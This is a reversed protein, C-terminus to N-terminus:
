VRVDGRKHEMFAVIRGSDHEEEFLDIQLIGGELEVQRSQPSAYM